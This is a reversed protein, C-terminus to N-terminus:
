QDCFDDWYQHPTDRIWSMALVIDDVGDGNIDGVSPIGKIRYGVSNNQWYLGADVTFVVPDNNFKADGGHSYVLIRRSDALIIEKNGDHDFDAVIPGCWQSTDIAFNGNINIPWNGHPQPDALAATVINLSCTFSLIMITAVYKLREQM